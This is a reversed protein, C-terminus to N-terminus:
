VSRREEGPMGLNVICRGCLQPHHTHTGVDPRRNWCRVCKPDTNPAAALWVGPLQAAAVAGAPPATVEHVRAESTILLFRLEPGLSAFRRQQEPLCYVDISADLPAGIAGTDRLKELERTVDTRLEIFADWDIAGAPVEPPTHWTAHFVSEAREGPLYRWIEEATFSLIPALWRVLAELIRYMAGQASRRGHSGEQMTYLRDKTIDLYLAGMENTCFNQIRQVIEPFDYKAYAAIVAQQVDCAQQVAWQDLLLSDTVPLLHQAPDFGHLNGLLFRATNRIRRYADSVRKLIEDSLAMENRYDAAAIWLRLIDAGYTKMVDQPEIGNGLSKSMKRGQADVTFGHTLVEDYPAKGHMAVSTLLSSHFWGRHQ